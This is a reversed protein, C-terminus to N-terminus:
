TAEPDHGGFAHVNGEQSPPKPPNRVSLTAQPEVDNLLFVKAILREGEAVIQTEWNQCDMM